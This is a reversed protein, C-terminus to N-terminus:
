PAEAPDRILDVVADARDNPVAFSLVYQEIKWTEGPGYRRLVGSGRLEGYADHDLKEDFWAIDGSVSLSRDRPHYTWGKGQAFIPDAYARFQALDWHESADTGIFRAGPAFQDFYAAGDAQSAAAHMRDLTAAAARAAPEAVVGARDDAPAPGAWSSPASTQLALAALLVAIM